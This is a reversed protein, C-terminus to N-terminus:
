NLPERIRYVTGKHPWSVNNGPATIYLTRQNPGFEVSTVFREPVSIIKRLRKDPGVALIRGAGHEAIYLVGNAGFALGDPGAMVDAGPVAAAMDDLRVWAERGTLSGDTAIRYRLVTRSLHASVYLYRGKPGVVVGNAYHIKEAVRRPRGGPVVHYIAGTAAAAASFRGSSTFYVGGRRDAAADNPNGIPEGGAGTSHFSALRGSDRVWAVARGIHCAVLFLGGPAPAISTMGCGKHAWFTRLAKGDWAAIRHRTMEAFYLTGDHWLPGEPYHADPAISTLEGAAAGTALSITAAAVGALSCARLGALRAAIRWRAFPLRRGRDNQM